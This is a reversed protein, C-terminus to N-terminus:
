RHLVGHFFGVRVSDSCDDQRHGWFAFRVRRCGWTDPGGGFLRLLWGAVVVHVDPELLRCVRGTRLEWQLPSRVPRYAGTNVSSRPPLYKVCSARVVRTPNPCSLWCPLFLATSARVYLRLRGLWGRLDLDIGM